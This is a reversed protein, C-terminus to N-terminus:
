DPNGVFTLQGFPLWREPDALPGVEATTLARLARLAYVGALLGAKMDNVGPGYARAGDSSFPRDAATGEDFVTDLHGIILAKGGTSGGRLIAVVTDGLEENHNVDVSAGLEEMQAAFWRGIEDVGAKTYSGCDVNVLRELDSMLDPLAGAAFERLHQLESDSVDNM